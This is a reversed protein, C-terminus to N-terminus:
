KAQIADTLEKNEAMVSLGLLNPHPHTIAFVPISARYAYFMDTGNFRKRFSTQSISGSYKRVFEGSIFVGGRAGTAMALNALYSGLLSWYLKVTTIAQEDSQQEAELTVDEPSRLKPDKGEIRCVANYIAVFGQASLLAEAPISTNSGIIERIIPNHFEGVLSLSVHGAETPVVHIHDGFKIRLSAGLGTGLGVFLMPYEPSISNGGIKEINVGELVDFSWASAELDNFINVNKIRNFLHFFNRDILINRNTISLYGDTEPGAASVYISISNIKQFNEKIYKRLLTRINHKNFYKNVEINFLKGNKLKSFRINTAGIDILLVNPELSM